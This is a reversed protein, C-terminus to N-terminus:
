EPCGRGKIQYTRDNIKEITNNDLHADLTEILEEVPPEVLPQTIIMPLCNLADESELVIEINYFRELTAIVDRISTGDLSIVGTKWADANIMEEENEVVTGTERSLTASEQAEIVITERTTERGELRVKGTKVTVEVEAEEPYARVNFSTGLVTTKAEDSLVSFSRIGDHTVEFFAEGQLEVQRKWFPTRYSLITNENLWVKSSDPLIILRGGEGEGTVVAVARWELPDYYWWGGISILLLIVAAYRLWNRQNSLRIVKGSPNGEGSIPDENAPAPAIKRTDPLRNELRDWAASVDAEFPEEEYEASIGWLQIMQDFFKENAEDSELWAFLEQKEPVTINGSLYKAILDLYKADEM